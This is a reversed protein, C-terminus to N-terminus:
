AHAAGRSLAIAASDELLAVAADPLGTVEVIASRCWAGGVAGALAAAAALAASRAAVARPAGSGLAAGALAAAAVRGLLAPPSLRSPIAPMKDGILEGAAMAIILRRGWPSRLVPWRRWGHDAPADDYTAVVAALPTVSRMGGAAGLALSRRALSRSTGTERAAAGQTQVM